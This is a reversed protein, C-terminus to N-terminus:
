LRVKVPVNRRGKVNRKVSKKKLAPNSPGYPGFDPQGGLTGFIDGLYNTAKVGSAFTSNWGDLIGEVIKVGALYINQVAPEFGGQDVTLLNDITAQGPYPREFDSATRMVIIRSYDVIGDAAGRMMAELTANDEQATACYEGTGNTIVKTYNSFVSSLITGSYYVDSTAVDCAIVSPGQAGAAYLDSTAYKARYAVATASDNLSAKKAFSMAVQRLADNVEFVETGYIDVPYQLPEKAGQPVYGTSWNSPVERVDFEYQLAVQIAFRAFSVSGLTGLEPSIGAIGAILFYTSTLDFLGSRLLSAITVAANIEGEGTVLQCIEGNATCHADPFLPSFGPVTVNKALLDFEPIGWWVDAEPTFMSIIFVKPKAIGAGASRRAVSGGAAFPSALSLSSGAALLGAAITSFRM